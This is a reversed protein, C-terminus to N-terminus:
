DNFEVLVQDLLLFTQGMGDTMGTELVMRRVDASAYTMTLVLETIDGLASFEAVNHAEGDGMNDLDVPMESHVIRSQDLIDKYTGTFGFESGDEDSRWRYLYTGGVRFDMECVPMSWGPPGLMWRQVLAPETYCRWVLALPANFKRKVVVDCNGPTTVEVEPKFAKNM